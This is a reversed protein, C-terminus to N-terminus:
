VSEALIFGDNLRQITCCKDPFKQEDLKLDGTIKWINWGVALAFGAAVAVADTILRLTTDSSLFTSFM